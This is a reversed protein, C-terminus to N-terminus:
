FREREVIAKDFSLFRIAKGESDLKAKIRKRFAHVSNPSHTEFLRSRIEGSEYQVRAVIRIARMQEPECGRGNGCEM